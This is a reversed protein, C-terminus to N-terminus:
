LTKHLGEELKAGGFEGVMALGGHRLLGAQQVGFRRPLTRFAFEEEVVIEQLAKLQRNEFAVEILRQLQLQGYLAGPRGHKVLQVPLEARFRAGRAGQVHSLPVLVHHAVFHGGVVVGELALVVVAACYVHLGGKERLEHGAVFLPQRQM